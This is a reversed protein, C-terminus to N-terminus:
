QRVFALAELALARWTPLHAKRVELWEKMLRGHGPDFQLGDGSAVLSAVRQAPLKAVFHGKSSLMAFIKGNVKLAGSGFSRKIGAGVTVGPQAGLETVLKSFLETTAADNPM